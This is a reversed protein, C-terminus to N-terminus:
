ARPLMTAMVPSPTLSAGASLDAWTPAAIPRTPVSTAFSALEITRASSLKALMAAAADDGKYKAAVDQFSPGVIKKDVNHCALCGKQQALEQGAYAAGSAMFAAVCVTCLGVFKQKM